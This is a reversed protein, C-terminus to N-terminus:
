NPTFWPTQRCSAILAAVAIRRDRVTAGHRSSGPNLNHHPPLLQTRDIIWPLDIVTSENPIIFTAYRAFAHYLTPLRKLLPSLNASPSWVGFSYPSCFAPLLHSIPISHFACIALWKTAVRALSLASDPDTLISPFPPYSFVTPALCSDRLDRVTRGALFRSKSSPIM